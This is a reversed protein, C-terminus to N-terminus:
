KYCNLFAAKHINLFYAASLYFKGIDVYDDTFPDTRDSLPGSDRSEYILIGNLGTQEELYRMFMEYLEVPHSPCMYTIIRLQQTMRFLSHM